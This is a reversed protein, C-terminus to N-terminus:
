QYAGLQPNLQKVLNGLEESCELKDQEIWQQLTDLKNKAIVQRGLEASEIATLKGTGLMEQLYLLVPPPNGPLATFRGILNPDNRMRQSGAVLTACATISGNDRTNMFNQLNAELQHSVMQDARNALRMAMEANRLTSAVYPIFNEEDSTISLVQGQKNIGIIGGNKSNSCTRFIRGLRVSSCCRLLWSVGDTSVRASWGVVLAVM